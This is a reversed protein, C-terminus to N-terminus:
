SRLVAYSRDAPYRGGPTMKLGFFGKEWDASDPYERFWDCVLTRKFIRWIDNRKEFRDLYRGGLMLDHAGAEGPLRHFAVVYGECNAANGDIEILINGLFHHTQQMSGSTATAAAKLYESVPGVFFGEYDTNGDPWFVSSLLAADCRDTARAYRMMCDRIAERDAMERAFESVTGSM